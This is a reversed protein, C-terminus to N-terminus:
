NRKTKAGSGDVDVESPNPIYDIETSTNLSNDFSQCHIASVLNCGNLLKSPVKLIFNCFDQSKNQRKYIAVTKFAQNTALVVCPINSLM